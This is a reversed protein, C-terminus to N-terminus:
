ILPPLPSRYIKDQTKRWVAATRVSRNSIIITTTNKFHLLPLSTLLVSLFFLFFAFSCTFFASVLRKGNDTDRSYGRKMEFILEIECTSFLHTRRLLSHSLFYGFSNGFGKGVSIYVKHLVTWVTPTWSKPSSLLPVAHVHTLFRYFEGGAQRTNSNSNNSSQEAELPDDHHRPRPYLSSPTATTITTATTKKKKERRSFVPVFFFTNEAHFRFCSLLPFSLLVTLVEPIDPPNRFSSGTRNVNLPLGCSIMSEHSGYGQQLVVSVVEALSTQARANFTDKIQQQQQKTTWRCQSSPASVRYTVDLRVGAPGALPSPREDTTIKAGETASAERIHQVMKPHKAFYDVSYEEVLVEAWASAHGNLMATELPSNGKSDQADWQITDNCHRSLRRMVCRLIEKVEGNSRHPKQLSWVGPICHLATWGFPKDQVTFDIPRHTRLLEQVCIVPGNLIAYWLIPKKKNDGTTAWAMVDAGSLVYDRLSPIDGESLLGDCREVVSVLRDTADMRNKYVSFLKQQRLSLMQWDEERIAVSHHLSLSYDKADGYYPEVIVDKLANMQEKQQLLILEMRKIIDEEKNRSSNDDNSM